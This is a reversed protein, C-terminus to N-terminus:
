VLRGLIRQIAEFENASFEKRWRGRHSKSLDIELMGRFFPIGLFDCIKTLVDETNDVFDYLDVTIVAGAPINGKVIKLYSMVYKYWEASKIKDKPTWRQKSLSTIVDKPERVMHIFKAPLFELIELGFLLSHTGEDIYIEKGVDVLHSNIVDKIFNGLIHGLESRKKYGMFYIPREHALGYHVGIYKFDILDELLKNVRDEYGPFHKNLEWDVYIEKCDDKKALSKLFTELRHLKNDIIYPSWSHTATNYFDVLGDPDVIFKCAFPHSTVMPHLSLAERMINTGCRGTGSIFVVGTM